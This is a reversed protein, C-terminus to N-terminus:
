NRTYLNFDFVDTLDKVVQECNTKESKLLAHGTFCEVATKGSDISQIIAEGAAKGTVMSSTIGEPGRLIGSAEGTLIINGKGFQYNKTGPMDNNMVGRSLLKRDIVLGHKHKLHETFKEQFKKPSEGQKVTTTVHIEQDKHFVTAMFGTLERDLFLYLWGPELDSTGQYWEEYCPLWGVSKDFEPFVSRRVKSQGGDAGVLYKTRIRAHNGAHKVEVIISKDDEQHDLFLCDDVLSADSQNCLWLDFESRYINFGYEPMDKRPDFMSFPLEMGESDKTMYMRNGIIDRPECFMKEPLDGFNESVFKVGSPFLIGSCMKDRPVSCKEIIVVRLGSNSLASATLAGAPGSGVIVVDYDSGLEAKKNGM